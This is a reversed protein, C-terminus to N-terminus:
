GVPAGDPTYKQLVNQMIDEKRNSAAFAWLGVVQKGHTNLIKVRLGKKLENTVLINGPGLRPICRPHEVTRCGMRVRTSSVVGLM